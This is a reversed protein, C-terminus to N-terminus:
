LPRHRVMVLGRQARRRRSSVGALACVLLPLVSSWGLAGSGGQSCFLNGCDGRVPKEVKAEVSIVVGGPDKIVFDAAGDADNPGGDEILLQVCNHGEALGKAYDVHGPPPCVGESGQASYIENRSNRAFDRWRLTPSYKRYVADKPIPATQPIVVSVSIGPAPLGHIEFDYYGGSNVRTDTADPGPNHEGGGFSIIDEASVLAQDRGTALATDGLRLSLGDRTQMLFADTRPTKQQLVHSALRSSDYYDLVGDNDSDGVAEDRDSLGDGDSDGDTLNPRAEVSMVRLQLEAKTLAPVLNSDKVTVRVKYYGPALTSPNFVFVNGQSGAGLESNTASWDYQYTTLGSRNINRVDVSVTVLGGDVMVVRIPVNNQRATLSVAPQINRETITVTQTRFGGPRANFPRGMNFVVTEDSPEDLVDSNTVLTVEGKTGSLIEITSSPEQYDIGKAASGTLSFPIKVPYYQPTSDLEVRVVVSDGEQVMQDLQFNAKPMNAAPDQITVTLPSSAPDVMYDAGDNITIILTEDGEVGQDDSINLTGALTSTAVNPFRLAGLSLNYDSGQTASGSVQYTFDIAGGNVNADPAGTRIFTIPASNSQGAQGEVLLSSGVSVGIVPLISVTAINSDTTGDNVQYSFNDAGSLAPLPSPTYTFAGTAANTITVTGGRSTSSSGVISYTLADGDADSGSLQGSVGAVAYAFRADVAVPAAAHAPLSMAWLVCFFLLAHFARALGQTQARPPYVQLEAASLPLATASGASIRSAFFTTMLYM